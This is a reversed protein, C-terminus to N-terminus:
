AKGHVTTKTKTKITISTMMGKPMIRKFEIIGNLAKIRSHM